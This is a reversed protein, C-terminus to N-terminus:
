VISPSVRVRVSFPIVMTMTRCYPTRNMSWIEFFQLPTGSCDPVGHKENLHFEGRKIGRREFFEDFSSKLKAHTFM